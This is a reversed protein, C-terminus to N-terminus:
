NTWTINLGQNATIKIADITDGKKVTLTETTATLAPAVNNSVFEATVTVDQDPMTFYYTNDQSTVDTDNYKVSSISYGTNPTVTLTIKDGQKGGLKDAKVTGHEINDAITITKYNKNRIVKRDGDEGITFYESKNSTVNNEGNMYVISAFDKISSADVLDIGDYITVTGIQGSANAYIYGTGIGNGGDHMNSNFETGIATVSGGKIIINGGTFSANSFVVSTGIGAGGEGGTTILSGDGTITLTTGSGGVQIGAKSYAGTVSNTGTLTITATGNCIIGGNITAGSLTISAGDAITITKDTTGTLVDGNKATFNVTTGSLDIPSNRQVTANITIDATGVTVSYAGDTATLTNTGDSVNSATYPFSAKFTIVTGSIYKGNADAANTASVIEMNVHLKVSYTKAVTATVTVNGDPMTFAYKGDGTNTLTLDNTGDNVKLTSADVATGLTLTVTEGALAYETDPTVSAKINDAITIAHNLAKTRIQRQSGEGSDYFVTNKADGEVATEGNKFVVNVTINANSRKGICESKSGKVAM